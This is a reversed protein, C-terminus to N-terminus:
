RGWDDTAIVRGLAIARLAYPHAEYQDQSLHASALVRAKMRSVLPLKKGLGEPLYTPIAGDGGPSALVARIWGEGFLTRKQYRRDELLIREVHADLYGVPLSRKGLHFQDKLQQTLNGVGQSSGRLLPTELLAKVADLTEKLKKDEGALPALSAATARLMELEDFPFRLEGGVLVLPPTFRGTESVAEKLLRGLSSTSTVPAQTLVGFVTHRDLSAQPDDVPFDHQPDLPAFELAESLERYHSRVRAVREPDFWLLEVVEDPVSPAAAVPAAPTAVGTLASEPLETTDPSEIAFASPLAPVAWPSRETDTLSLRSPDPGRAPAPSDALLSPAPHSGPDPVLSAELRSPTDALLSPSSARGHPAPPEVPAPAPATPALWAPAADRPRAPTTLTTMTRAFRDDVWDEKTNEGDDAPPLEIKPRTPRTKVGPPPRPPLPPPKPGEASTAPPPAPPAPPPGPPALPVHPMAPPAPPALPAHPMAPPGPPMGPPALPPAPMSARAPFAQRKDIDLRLKDADAWTLSQGGEAMAVLIRGREARSWLPVTVRWTVTCISRDTDIWLSDARMPLEEPARERREVFVQPRVGPLRTRLLAHEPHLHELVIEQQPFLEDLQQDAPACNFYAPEIEGYIPNQQFPAPIAKGGRELLRRRPLWDAAVPGYGVPPIAESRKPVGFGEPALNPLQASEPPVGVPNQTEPGGAAREYRLAMTAFPLPESPGAPTWAREGFVEIAKVVRGISLRAVLSRVPRRRPSFANGVLTVDVHRKFPVLDGPSYVSREADDDWHNDHENIAEQAVSLRLEDPAIDFTAKCAVSLAWEDRSKQWLLQAVYFPGLPVVDM